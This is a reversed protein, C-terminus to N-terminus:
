KKPFLVAEEKSAGDVMQDWLELITDDIIRPRKNEIMEPLSVDNKFWSRGRDIYINTSSLFKDLSYVFKSEEDERKEYRHIYDTLDSFEPFEKKIRQMAEEERSAKDEKMEVGHGFNPTDGAYVEVLDHTIAYKLVLDVDLDLKKASIIYWAVLALQYSHEADNELRDESTAYISRKTQQFSHTLKIFNLLSNFEM